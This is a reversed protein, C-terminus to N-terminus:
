DLGDKSTRPRRRSHRGCVELPSREWRPEPRPGPELERHRRLEAVLEYVIRDVIAEPDPSNAEAALTATPLIMVGRAEYLLRRANQRHHSVTRQAEVLNEPYSVLLTRPRPPKKDWYAELRSKGLAEVGM